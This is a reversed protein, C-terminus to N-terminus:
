SGSRDKRLRSLTEASMGLLSAIYRLPVQNFLEPREALLQDFREKASKSLFSLVREELTIFCHGIFQRELRPWEAIGTHLNRYTDRDMSYLSLPTLATLDYRAPSGFFLAALDTIFYGPGGIWQTIERERVPVSVRVFGSEVFSLRPHYSGARLLSEGAPVEEREFYSAVTKAQETSLSLSSSLHRVLPNMGGLYTVEYRM